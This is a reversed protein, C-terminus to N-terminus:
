SGRQPFQEDWPVNRPPTVEESSPSAQPWLHHGLGSLRTNKSYFSSMLLGQAPDELEGGEEEAMPGTNDGCSLHPFLSIRKFLPAPIQVRSPPIWPRRGRSRQLEVALGLFGQSSM